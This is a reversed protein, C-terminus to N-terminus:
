PINCRNYTLQGKLFLVMFSHYTISTPSIGSAIRAQFGEGQNRPFMNGATNPSENEEGRKKLGSLSSRIGQM